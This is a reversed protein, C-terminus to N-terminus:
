EINDLEALVSEVDEDTLGTDTQPTITKAPAAVAKVPESAEAVAQEIEADEVQAATSSLAPSPTKTQPLTLQVGSTGAPGGLRPLTIGSIQAIANLAKQEEGRFFERQVYQFVDTLKGWIAKDVPKSQGPAVNVTYETNLGKGSKSIAIDMGSALDLVDEGEEAFQQIVSMVKGWTTPTLELIQPDEGTTSGKSRDIVQVYVSKNPKMDEYLKRSEEDPANAIALEIAACVACPKDNVISDCGVVALPKGNPDSKIWHVGVDAWFTGDPKVWSCDQQTPALFRYRNIGEKPKLRAGGARSYKNVGSALLKQLAPNLAM